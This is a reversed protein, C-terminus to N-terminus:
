RANPLTSTPPHAFAHPPQTRTTRNHPHRAPFQPCRPTANHNAPKPATARTKGHHRATATAHLQCSPRLLLVCRRRGDWGPLARDRGIESALCPRAQNTSPHSVEQSYRTSYAKASPSKNGEAGAGAPQGRSAHAKTNPSLTGIHQKTTGVSNTDIQGKRGQRVEQNAGRRKGKKEGSDRRAKGEMVAAPAQRIAWTHRCPVTGHEPTGVAPDWGLNGTPDGM